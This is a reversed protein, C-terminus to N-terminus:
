KNSYHVLLSDLTLQSAKDFTVAQTPGWKWAAKSELLVSFIPLMVVLRKIQFYYGCYATIKM